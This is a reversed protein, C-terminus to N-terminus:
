ATRTVTSLVAIDAQFVGSSEDPFSVLCFLNKTKKKIRSFLHNVVHNMLFGVKGWKWRLGEAKWHCTLVIYSSASTPVTHAPLSPFQSWSCHRMIAWDWCTQCHNTAFLHICVEMRNWLLQSLDDKDLSSSYRDQHSHDRGPHCYPDFTKDSCAAMNLIM